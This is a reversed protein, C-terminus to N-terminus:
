RKLLKAEREAYLEVRNLRGISPGYHDVIADAGAFFEELAAKRTNQVALPETDSALAADLARRVLEAESMGLQAARRKLRQDQESTLYLQKRVMPNGEM